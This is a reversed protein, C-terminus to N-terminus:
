DVLLTDWKETLDKSCDKFTEIFEISKDKKRKNSGTLMRCEIDVETPSMSTEQVVDDDGPDIARSSMARDKGFITCLKEQFPLPTGKFNADGEHTKCYDSWVKDEVDVCTTESDWKFSFGRTDTGLLMDHVICMAYVLTDCLVNYSCHAPGLTAMM